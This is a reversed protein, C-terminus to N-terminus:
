NQYAGRKNCFALFHKPTLLACCVSQTWERERPLPANVIRLVGEWAMDPRLHRVHPVWDPATENLREM